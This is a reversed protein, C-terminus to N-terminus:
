IQYIFTGSPCLNWLLDSLLIEGYLEFDDGELCGSYFSYALFNLVNSLYWATHANDKKAPFPKSTAVFCCFCLCINLPKGRQITNAWEKDPFICM